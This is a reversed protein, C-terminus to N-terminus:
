IEKGRKKMKALMAKDFTKGQLEKIHKRSLEILPIAQLETWTQKYSAAFLSTVGEHWEQDRSPIPISFADLVKLGVWEAPELGVQMFEDTYIEADRERPTFLLEHLRAKFEPQVDSALADVEEAHRQLTAIM